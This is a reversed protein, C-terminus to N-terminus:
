RPWLGAPPAIITASIRVMPASASLPQSVCVAETWHGSNHVRPAIENVLLDEGGPLVFFEIGMVGVYD